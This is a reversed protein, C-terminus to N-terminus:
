AMTELMKLSVTYRLPKGAQWNKFEEICYDAMRVVEDGLSGAIHSTLHINPLRYLESDALPPEPFTVDLLATLDKRERFVTILGDEDVTAGRGTNIFTADQRMREFLGRTLMKRTSPLDPVHNSVVYALQFAEELSVKRVGLVHADEDSLYPDHVVVKLEFSRLFEIVKRGIMGAGIIAITEGFNGKGVFSKGSLRTEPSRCDQTNRFYGKTSLLIQALTFEAVPIANAAWSSVVIINRKLLPRAFGQVSGAGYFVAELNPLRDLHEDTLQPMGWTSFIVELNTLEDVHEWFNHQSIVTPYLDTLEAVYQKRGKSYVRNVNSVHDCFFAAERM